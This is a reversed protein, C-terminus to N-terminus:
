QLFLAPTEEVTNIGDTAFISDNYIWEMVKFPSLVKCYHFGAAASIPYTTPTRMMPSKVIMQSKDDSESYEMFTWIWLPGENYPGKDDGTVLKQGKADYNDRAAKSVRDYAWKISQDNIEACRNGVEDTEHFDADANGGKVQVSQRSSIKTKMESASVAYYGTDLMDLFDYKNETVTVTKLVCPESVDAACETDVEPLHVPAISQVRHFNDDNLVSINSNSFTGAMINQTVQQSWPNGHQCTPDDTPNLLEHGYCPDKMQYSGEMVFGEVLGKLVEASQNESYTSGTIMADLFKVIEGGFMKHADAESIAPMLDRKKVASPAEGSMYSMHSTGEVAFIPFTGKQAAEINDYQHWYAEALRTVRMLGDKTGGLTLTPVDYDFHSTGDDNIKRNTRLLVSGMLIQGKITDSKGKAYNQAMVGGLSHGAIFVNDSSFGMDQLSKLSSEFYHDILIPEPTSLIFQPIGVWLRKGAAAAQSQAEQAMTQYAEADCDAGHIWIIAVDDGTAGEPPALLVEKALSAIPSLGALLACITKRLM